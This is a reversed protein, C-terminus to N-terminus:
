PAFGIKKIMFRFKDNRQYLKIMGDLDDIGLREKITKTMELFELLTKNRGDIEYRYNFYDCRNPQNGILCGFGACRHGGKGHEERGHGCYKCKESESM